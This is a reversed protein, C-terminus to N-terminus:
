RHPEEAAKVPKTEDEPIAHGFVSWVVGDRVITMTLRGEETIILCWARDNEVGSFIWQGKEKRAVEIKTVEGRRSAPALLTVEKRDSDVLLFTPCELKGLDPPGVTGDEDAAVASVLSCLWREGAWTEGCAVLCALVALLVVQKFVSKM